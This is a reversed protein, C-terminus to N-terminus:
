VGPFAEVGAEAEQDDEGGEGSVECVLDEVAVASWVEKDLGVDDCGDHNEKWPQDLEPVHCLVVKLDVLLPSALRSSCLDDRAPVSPAPKGVIEIIGNGKEEAKVHKREVAFPTSPTSTHNEFPLTREPNTRLPPVVIARQSIPTHLLAHRIEPPITSTSVSKDTTRRTQSSRDSWVRERSLSVHVYTPSVWGRGMRLLLM